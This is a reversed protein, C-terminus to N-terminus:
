KTDKTEDDEEKPKICDVVAGLAINYIRCIEFGCVFCEYIMTKM